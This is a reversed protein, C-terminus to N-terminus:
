SSALVRVSIVMVKAYEIKLTCCGAYIDAGDLQSKARQASPVSDYRTIQTLFSGIIYPVLDLLSISKLTVKLWLGVAHAAALYLAKMYRDDLCLMCALCLVHVILM